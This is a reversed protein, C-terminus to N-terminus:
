DVAFVWISGGQPVEPYAGPRVLNLRLQMRAADVGWGSQVAVYQKGDVRYSSPVGNVGSPLTVEYLVKGNTADLARFKRDNTGGTFLVDGGTALIPGWNQSMGYSHTWSKKGTDLDWAQVEGVHDAGKRLYLWSTVGIYLQGPSYNVPRGLMAGCLNENAPIYLLKTKPSYAVPPWDKGGSLSPCFDAMKGTGPKHEPAVIPHGTKPDLGTFTNNYVFPQGAVFNIKDATRELMWLYGDRAVDVLGKVLKGNHHYDVIIPPSVEDWDWSDNQHYQHYGKIKGTEADLALVSSTYLNDGPRQDGMWPGGNGTGWFALKTEPDYVGTVWVPGGGTKWQDGQPWTESGPEGPAPVTFTRWLEKGTGADFAVIFGRIGLEGGSVGVMVKGDIVLPALSAYYGRAYDEYKTVWAEKGTKADLAVMNADASAFLVKDGWLGVGRSTPHLQLMDEPLPRKYRWLLDGTKANVALVQNGPTAVFMVGNNVIPPAQHGEVQGTTMSWVPHLHSANATTIESLPSYGWGNYTRRFMLWDGDDPQTLREATVPKYSALVSALGAPAAVPEGNPPMPNPAAPPTPPPNPPAQQALAGSAVLGLALVAALTILNKSGRM